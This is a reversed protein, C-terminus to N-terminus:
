IIIAGRFAIKKHLGLLYPELVECPWASMQTKFKDIYAHMEKTYKDMAVM